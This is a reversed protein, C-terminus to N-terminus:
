DDTRNMARQVNEERRRAVLQNTEGFQIAGSPCCAVCSPKLGKEVRGMCLNCKGAVTKTADTAIADFPCADACAMCGVCLEADIVVIGNPLKSIAGAVPCAEVCPPKACHRCTIPVFDLLLRGNIKRPGVTIVKIWNVGVPLGNEQKCAVECAHCDFCLKHDVM